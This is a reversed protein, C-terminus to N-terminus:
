SDAQWHLPRPNSGQDPFIGCAVSYTLRHAVVVSGASQVGRAVVVSARSGLARARCCSFGSCLSVQAGCSSFARTCCCLGLAALFLYILFFFLQSHTMQTELYREKQIENTTHTMQIHIYCLIFIPSPTLPLRHVLGLIPQSSVSRIKLQKIQDKIKELTRLRKSRCIMKIRCSFHGCDVQKKHIVKLFVYIFMKDSEVYFFLVEQFFVEKQLSLRHSNHLKTM